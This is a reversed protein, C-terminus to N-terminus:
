LCCRWPMGLTTNGLEPQHIRVTAHDQTGVRLLQREAIVPQRTMVKFRPEEM